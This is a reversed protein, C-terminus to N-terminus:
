NASPMVQISQAAISGDSNSSGMVSINTGTALDDLSGTSQKSVTTSNTYYITKMSGSTLKITISKDDKATISGSNAGGAGGPQGAKAGAPPSGFAMPGSGNAGPNSPQKSSQYTKGGFFGGALLILGIVIQVIIKNSKM